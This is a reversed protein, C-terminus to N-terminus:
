LCNKVEYHSNKVDFCDIKMKQKEQYKCTFDKNYFLCGLCPNKIGRVGADVLEVNEILFSKGSTAIVVRIVFAKRIRNWLKRM